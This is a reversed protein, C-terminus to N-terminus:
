LAVVFGLRMVCKISKIIVKIIIIITLKNSQKVKKVAFMSINAIILDSCSEIKRKFTFILLRYNGISQNNPGFKLELSDTGGFDPKKVAVTRFANIIKKDRRKM